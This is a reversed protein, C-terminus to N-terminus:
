VELALEAAKKAHIMTTDFIPIDVDSQTILLGIETCGLIVGEAGNEIIKSIIRQFIIRSERKIKGLCLESFIINNVTEIDGQEPILVDIGRDTLRKKYFDQTM